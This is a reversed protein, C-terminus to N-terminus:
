AGTKADVIQQVIKILDENATAKDYHISQGDVVVEGGNTLDILQGEYFFAPTGEAGDEKAMGSDFEIKKAVADSAVDNRFKELDGQGNTVENFYNEFLETRESGSAYSWEAQTDFLKDAYQAWYGQLGAAEAAAAAAKSNQFSSWTLNRFVVAIQGNSDTVMQEVIPNMVACHSCQFNAYEHIVVPAEASGKVHDGIQGNDDTAEVTATETYASYEVANNNKNIILATGICLVALVVVTVVVAVTSVGRLFKKKM